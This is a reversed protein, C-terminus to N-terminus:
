EAGRGNQLLEIEGALYDMVENRTQHIRDQGSLAQRSIYGFIRLIFYSIHISPWIHYIVFAHSPSMVPEDQKESYLQECLSSCQHFVEQPPPHLHFKVLRLCALWGSTMPQHLTCVSSSVDLPRPCFLDPQWPSKWYYIVSDWLRHLLSSWLQISPGSYGHWANCAARAQNLQRTFCNAKTACKTKEGTM